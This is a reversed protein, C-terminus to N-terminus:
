VALFIAIGFYLIFERIALLVYWAVNLTIGHSLNICHIGQSHSFLFQTERSLDIGLLGADTADSYNWKAANATLILDLLPSLNEAICRKIATAFTSKEKAQKCISSLHTVKKRWTGGRAEFKSRPSAIRAYFYASWFSETDLFQCWRRCVFLVRGLDFLHVGLFVPKLIDYAYPDM